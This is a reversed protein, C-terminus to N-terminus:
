NDVDPGDVKMQESSYLLLHLIMAIYGGVFYQREEM